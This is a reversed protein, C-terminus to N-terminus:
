GEYFEWDNCTLDNISFREDVTVLRVGGDENIFLRVQELDTRAEIWLNQHWSTRHIKKGNLFEPFIENLTM